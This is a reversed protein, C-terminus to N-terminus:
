DYADSLWPGQLRSEANGLHQSIEVLTSDLVDGESEGVSGECDYQEYESVEIKEQCDHTVRSITLTCEKFVAAM